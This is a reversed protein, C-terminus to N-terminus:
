IDKGVGYYVLILSPVNLLFLIPPWILRFVTNHFTNFLVLGYFSIEFGMVGLSFYRLKKKLFYDEFNNYVNLILIFSPIAVTITYFIITLLSFILNYHPIWNFNESIVIANPFSFLLVCFLGYIIVIILYNRLKFVPKILQFIFLPLFICGFLITFSIIYYMVSLLIELKLFISFSIYILNLFLGIGELLYFLSLNITFRTHKRKLIKYALVFCIIFLIPQTILVTFFRLFSSEQFYM